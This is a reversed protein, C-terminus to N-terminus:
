QRHLPPQPSPSPLDLGPQQQPQPEPEDPEPEPEPEDYLHSHRFELSAAPSTAMDGSRRQGQEVELRRGEVGVWQGLGEPRLVNALLECASGLHVSEVV